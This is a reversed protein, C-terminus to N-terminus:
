IILGAPGQISMLKNNFYQYTNKGINLHDLLQNKFAFKLLNTPLAKSLYEINTRGTNMRNLIERDDVMEYPLSFHFTIDNCDASM